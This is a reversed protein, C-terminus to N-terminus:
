IHGEMLLMTMYSQPLVNFIHKEIMFCLTWVPDGADPKSQCAKLTDYVGGALVRGRRLVSGLVPSPQTSHHLHSPPASSVSAASSAFSPVEPPSPPTIIPFTHHSRIHYAACPCGSTTSEQYLTTSTSINTTPHLSQTSISRLKHPVSVSPAGLVSSAAPASRSLRMSASGGATQVRDGTTGDCWAWTHRSNNSCPLGAAPPAGEPQVAGLPLVGLVGRHKRGPGSQAQPAAPAGHLAPDPDGRCGGDHPAGGSGGGADLLHSAPCLGCLPGPSILGSPSLAPGTGPSLKWALACTPLPDASVGPSDCTRAAHSNFDAVEPYCGKQTVTVTLM